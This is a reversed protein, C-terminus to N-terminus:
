QRDTLKPVHDLYKNARDTDSHLYMSAEPEPYMKWTKFYPLLNGLLVKSVVAVRPKEVGTRVSNPEPVNQDTRNTSTNTGVPKPRYNYM